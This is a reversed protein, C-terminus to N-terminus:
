STASTSPAGDVLSQVSVGLAGAIAVARGLPIDVGREYAAISRVPIGTARSLQARSLNREHRLSTIPLHKPMRPFESTM